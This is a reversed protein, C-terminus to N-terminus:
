MGEVLSRAQLWPMHGLSPIWSAVSQNVPWCEIWQTVGALAMRSETEIFKIANSVEYIPIIWYKNKQTQSMKSLTICKFTTWAAILM